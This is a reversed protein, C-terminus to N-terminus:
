LKNIRSGRREKAEIQIQSQNIDLVSIQCHRMDNTSSLNGPFHGDEEYRM